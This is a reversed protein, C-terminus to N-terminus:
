SDTGTKLNDNNELLRLSFVPGNNEQIAEGEDSDYDKNYVDKVLDKYTQLILAAARLRNQESAKENDMMRSATLVAKSVHPSFKRVLALLTEERRERNTKVKNQDKVPRGSPNGSVGKVFAM